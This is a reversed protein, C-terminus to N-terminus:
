DVTLSDLDSVNKVLRRVGKHEVYILGRYTWCSRGFKLKVDKYLPLIEKILFETIMIKSNKLGKKSAFVDDRKWQQCFQILVPRPFRKQESTRGLRYVVDIDSKTIDLKLKDRFLSLVSEYLDSASQEESVGHILLCKLNNKLRSSRNIHHLSEVDAKLASMASNMTHQFSEFNKILEEDSSVNASSNQRSELSLRRAMLQGKFDEMSSVFMDSLKDVRSSVSQLTLKEGKGAMRGSFVLM